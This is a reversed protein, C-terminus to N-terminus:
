GTQAEYTKSQNSYRKDPYEELSPVFFYAEIDVDNFIYNEPDFDRAIFYIPTEDKLSSSFCKITKSREFSRYTDFGLHDLVKYLHKKNVM